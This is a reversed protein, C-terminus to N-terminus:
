CSSGDIDAGSDLLVTCPHMGLKGQIIFWNDTARECAEYESESTENVALLAVLRKLATELNTDGNTVALANCAKRQTLPSRIFKRTMRGTFEGTGGKDCNAYKHAPSSSRCVMLRNCRGAQSLWSGRWNELFMMTGDELGTTIMPLLKINADKALLNIM